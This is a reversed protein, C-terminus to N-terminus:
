QFLYRYSWDDIMRHTSNEFKKFEKYRAEPGEHDNLGYLQMTLEARGQDM